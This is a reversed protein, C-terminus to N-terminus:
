RGGGSKGEDEIKILYKKQDEKVPPLNTLLSSRSNLTGKM